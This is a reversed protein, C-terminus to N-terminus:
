NLVSRTELRLRNQHWRKLLTLTIFGVIALVVLPGVIAAVLKLGFLVSGSVEIFAEKYPAPLEPFSGNNCFDGLFWNIAWMLSCVLHPDNQRRVKVANSEINAVQKDRTSRRFRPQKVCSILKSPNPLAVGRFVRSAQFVRKNFDSKYCSM